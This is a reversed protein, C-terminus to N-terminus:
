GTPCGSSRPQTPRTSPSLTTWRAACVRCDNKVPPPVARSCASYGSASTLSRLGTNCGGEIRIKSSCSAKTNALGAAMRPGPASIGPVSPRASAGLTTADDAGLANWGRVRDERLPPIQASSGRLIAVESKTEPRDGDGRLRELGVGARLEYPDSPELAEALERGVEVPALRDPKGGIPRLEVRSVEDGPRAAAHDLRDSGADRDLHDDLPIPVSSAKM